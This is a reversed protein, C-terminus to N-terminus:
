LGAAERVRGEAADVVAATAPDALDVGGPGIVQTFLRGAADRRLAVQAEAGGPLRVRERHVVSSDVCQRLADALRTSRGDGLRLRTPEAADVWEVVITASEPDLRAVAVDSWERRIAEGASGSEDPVVVLRHTTAAAWGDALRAHALVREGHALGLRARVDAPLPSRRFLPM